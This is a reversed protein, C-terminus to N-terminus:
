MNRGEGTETTNKRWRKPLALKAIVLFHVSHIYSGRYLHTDRV